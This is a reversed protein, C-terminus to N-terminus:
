ALKIVKWDICMLWNSTIPTITRVSREEKKIAPLTTKFAEQLARVEELNGQKKAQILKKVIEKRLKNIDMMM